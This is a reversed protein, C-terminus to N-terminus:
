TACTAEESRPDHPPRTWGRTALVLALGVLAFTVLGVAEHAWAPAEVLGTELDTHAPRASSSPVVGPVDRPTSTTTGLTM